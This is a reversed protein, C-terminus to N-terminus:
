RRRCVVVLECMLRGSARQRRCGRSGACARDVMRHWGDKSWPRSTVKPPFMSGSPSACHQHLARSRSNSHARRERDPGTHEQISWASGDWAETLPASSAAGTSSGTEGTASCDTASECSVGWLYDHQSTMDPIASISWKTGNWLEALTVYRGTSKWYEDGVASCFNASTCSVGNLVSGAHKPPPRRINSWTTGNWLEAM